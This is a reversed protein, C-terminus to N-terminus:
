CKEGRRLNNISVIGKIYIQVFSCIYVCLHMYMHINSDAGLLMLFKDKVKSQCQNFIYSVKIYITEEIEQTMWDTFM